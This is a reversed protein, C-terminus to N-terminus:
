LIHFYNRGYDRTIQGPLFANSLFDAKLEATCAPKIVIQMNKVTLMVFNKKIDIHKCFNFHKGAGGNM